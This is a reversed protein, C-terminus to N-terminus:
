ITDLCKNIKQELEDIDPYLNVNFISKNIDNSSMYCSFNDFCFTQNLENYYETFQQFTQSFEPLCYKLVYEKM